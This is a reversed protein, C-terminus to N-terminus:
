RLGLAEGLDENWEIEDIIKAAAKQWHEIAQSYGNFYDESFVEDPDIMEGCLKGVEACFKILLESPKIEVRDDM